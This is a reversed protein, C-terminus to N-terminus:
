KAKEKPKYGIAKFNHWEVGAGVKLIDSLKSTLENTTTAEMIIDDCAEELNQLRALEKGQETKNVEREAFNESWTRCQEECKYSTIKDNKDGSSFEYKLSNNYARTTRATKKFFAKAKRIANEHLDEAEKLDQIIKKAGIKEILRNYGKEAMEMVLQRNMLKQDEILPELKKRVKSRLHDQTRVQVGSMIAGKNLKISWHPTHYIATLKVAEIKKGM